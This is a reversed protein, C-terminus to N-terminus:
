SSIKQAHELDLYGDVQNINSTGKSYVYKTSQSVTPTVVGQQILMFEAQYALENAMEKSTANIAQEVVSDYEQNTYGCLNDGSTSIFKDLVSMPTTGNDTLKVLAITFDGTKLRNEYIDQPLVEINIYTIFQDKWQKLMYSGIADFGGSEPMIISVEELKELAAEELGKAYLAKAHEIDYPLLPVEKKDAGAAKKPILSTAQKYIDETRLIYEQSDLAMFLAKRINENSLGEVRTNMGILWVTDEVEHIEYKKETLIPVDEERVLYVDSDGDLFLKLLEDEQKVQIKEDYVRDIYFYVNPTNVQASDYYYPNASLQIYSDNNWNKVTFPGNFILYKVEMGYRARTDVFFDERCPMAPTDGLMDLFGNSQKSLTIKLTYDDLAVVGLQDSSLEGALVQTAGSIMSYQDAFPSPANKNFIRQFAFVFDDATVPQNDSWLVDTRLHFIYELGDSSISYEKAVEEEIEGFQNVSVLGRFTNKIMDRSTQDTAFQPDLNEVQQSVDIRINSYTVQVCSVTLIMILVMAVMMIQKKM